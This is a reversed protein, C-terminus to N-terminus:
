YYSKLSGKSANEAPSVLAATDFTSGNAEAFSGNLALSGNEELKPVLESHFLAVGELV